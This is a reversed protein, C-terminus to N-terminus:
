IAKIFREVENLTPLSPIAGRKTVTLAGVANAFKVAEEITKGGVLAAALAGNFADGAAVTDVSKVRYGSVIKKGDRDAIMAGRKGLTAIVRKVGKNLLKDAAAYLRAETDVPMGALAELETENPTICDLGNLMSDPLSCVPAPNLIVPVKASKCIAILEEVVELRLELQTLVLKSGRITGELSKLRAADFKYNATPIVVIENETRKNILIVAVSTPGDATLVNDCKINEAEFLAKLERGYADGGVAGAKEVDVGLRAAAVCQNAGNGGPFTNFAGGIISQGPRPFEDANAVLDMNISGVVTISSM